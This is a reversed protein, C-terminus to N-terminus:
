RHRAKASTMREPLAFSIVTDSEDNAALKHGGVAIVVYQRGKVEYTMPTANSTAPLSGKWLERGNSSDYARFYPDNTSAAFLLGGDTVIAGGVGVSGSVGRKLEGHAVSWLQKGTDLNTAVIRGYPGPGCLLGAPSVLAQLQMSYPAGRMSSGDVSGVGADPPRYANSWIADSSGEATSGGIWVPMERKWKNEVRQWTTVNRPVLRVRFPLISVRTYMVDTTPDLASSGWNPGGLPSPFILSGQESPPTFFGQYKLKAIQARCYSRDAESGNDLDAISYALPQLPPLTSFPQTPWTVEGPVTTQAVAREEIPYLPEGTLRNFIYIMGTKNTIAVAPIHGRFRSSCRSPPRITIGCIM